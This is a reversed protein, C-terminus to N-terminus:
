SELTALAAKLVEDPNYEGFPQSELMKLTSKKNKRTSNYLNVVSELVDSPFEGEEIEEGEVEVEQGEERRPYRENRAKICADRDKYVGIFKPVGYNKKGEKPPVFSDVNEAAVWLIPAAKKGNPLLKTYWDEGFVSIQSPLVTEEWDSLVWKKPDKNTKNSNQISVDREYHFDLTPNLDSVDIDYHLQFSENEGLEIDDSDKLNNQEMYDSLTVKDPQNGKGKWKVIMPTVTMPGFNVNNGRGTVVPAENVMKKVKDAFSM